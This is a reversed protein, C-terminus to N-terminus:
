ADNTGVHRDFSMFREAMIMISAFADTRANPFSSSLLLYRDIHSSSPLGGFADSYVLM